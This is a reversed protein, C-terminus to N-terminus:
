NLALQRLETMEFYIWRKVSSGTSFGACYDDITRLSGIQRNFVVPCYSLWGKRKTRVQHGPQNDM